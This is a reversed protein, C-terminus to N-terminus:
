GLHPPPHTGILNLSPDTEYATSEPPLILTAQFVCSLCSSFSQTLEFLPAAEGLLSLGASRDWPDRRRDRRKTSLARAHQDRGGLVSACISEYYASALSCAGDQRPVRGNGSAAGQSSVGPTVCRNFRLVVCGM